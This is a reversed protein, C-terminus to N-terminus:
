PTAEDDSIPRDWPGTDFWCEMCFVGSGDPKRLGCRQCLGLEKRLRVTEEGQRIQEEHWRREEAYDQFGKKMADFMRRDEASLNELRERLERQKEPSM